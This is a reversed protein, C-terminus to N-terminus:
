FRYGISLGYSLGFGFGAIERKTITEEGEYLVKNILAGTLFHFKLVLHERVIKRFDAGIGCLSSNVQDFDTDYTGLTDFNFTYARRRYEIIFYAEMNMSELDYERKKLPTKLNAGISFGGNGPPLSLSYRTELLPESQLVGVSAGLFFRDAIPHEYSLNIDGFLLAGFDFYLAGNPLPKRSKNFRGTKEDRDEADDGLIQANAPCTFLAVLAFLLISKLIKGELLLSAM